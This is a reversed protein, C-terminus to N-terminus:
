SVAYKFGLRELLESCDQGELGFAEQFRKNNAPFQRKNHQPNLSDHIYRRLRQLAEMETAQRIGERSPDDEVLASYRRKLLEPNTLLGLSDSDLRPLRFIIYLTTRCEGVSCQWAYRIRDSTINDHFTARRFHHLPHDSTPCPNTSNSYDIWVDAHIRCKKCVVALKYITNGDPRLDLPPQVSQTFKTTYDHRCSGIPSAPQPGEGHPPTHDALVNPRGKLPDFALFDQYVKPATKGPGSPQFTMVSFHLHYALRQLRLILFM